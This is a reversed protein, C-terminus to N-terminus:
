GNHLPYRFTSNVPCVASPLSRLPTSCMFPEYLSGGHKVFMEKLMAIIDQETAHTVYGVDAKRHKGRHAAPQPM